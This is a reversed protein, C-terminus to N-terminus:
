PQERGLEERARLHEFIARRTVGYMLIRSLVEPDSKQVEEVESAVARPLRVRLEVARTESM